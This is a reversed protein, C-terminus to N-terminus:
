HTASHFLFPWIIMWAMYLVTAIISRFWGIYCFKQIAFVCVVPTIIITLQPVYIASVLSVITVGLSVFFLTSYSTDGQHRGVLFLIVWLIAPALFFGYPIIPM